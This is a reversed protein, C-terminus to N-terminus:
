NGDGGIKKLYTTLIHEQDEKKLNEKIKGEALELALNVAEERLSEKAKRVEQDINERAQSILGEGMREGERILSAKEKEGDTRAANLIGEMEKDKERLRDQIAAFGKKATEKAEEADKIAKAIGESRKTLLEKLRFKSLLLYLLFVLISFNIIRWLWESWTAGHGEEGGSAIVFTALIHVFILPLFLNKISYRLIQM